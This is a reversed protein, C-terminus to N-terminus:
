SGEGGFLFVFFFFVSVELKLLSGRRGGRAEEASLEGRFLDARELVVYQM